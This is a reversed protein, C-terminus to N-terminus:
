RVLASLGDIARGLLRSARQSHRLVPLAFPRDGGLLGAPPGFERRAGARDPTVRGRTSVTGEASAVRQYLQAQRAGIAAWTLDRVQDNGIARRRDFDVADSLLRRVGETLGAVDGEPVLVADDAAVEPISGSAYGAVVAGAAKAEVIVRGFQEVWTATARSPVLVVHMAAYLEALTQGSVWPIVEISDRVGLRDAAELAPRLEPGEGVLLLRAPRGRALGALATVADVVGKEPVMRGILGLVVPEDTARQHGPKLVDDEYGLPLVEILGTFGKGRAVSAAQRSCPYLADIRALARKEWWWFPPPYRKDVNQATYMVVPLADGVQGLVQRSVASFPEEHLDLVDPQVQDLIRGLSRASEYRHRNVDGPRVVPLEHVTLGREGTVGEDPGPWRQPVLLHVDVGAAVLARDRARHAPDRGGHYIRLVRVQSIGERRCAPLRPVLHVAARLRSGGYALPAQLM